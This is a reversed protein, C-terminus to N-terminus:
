TINLEREDDTILDSVFSIGTNINLKSPISNPTKFTFNTEDDLTDEKERDFIEDIRDSLDLDDLRINEMQSDMYLMELIVKNSAPQSLSQPVFSNDNSIQNEWNIVLKVLKKLYQNMYVSKKINDKCNQSETLLHMQHLKLNDLFLEVRVEDELEVNLNDIGFLISNPSKFNNCIVQDIITEPLHGNLIKAIESAKLMLFGFFKKNYQNGFETKFYLERQKRDLILENWHTRKKLIKYEFENQNTKTRDKPSETVTNNVLPFYEKILLCAKKLDGTRLCEYIHLAKIPGVVRSFLTEPILNPLTKNIHSLFLIISEFYKLERNKIMLHMNFLEYRIPPIKYDSFKVNNMAISKVVFDLNYKLGYELLVKKMCFLIQDRSTM